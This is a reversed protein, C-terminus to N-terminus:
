ILAIINRSDEEREEVLHRSRGNGAGEAAYLESPSSALSEPSRMSAARMNRRASSPSTPAGDCGKTATMRALIRSVSAM